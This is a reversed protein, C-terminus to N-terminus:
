KYVRIQASSRGLKFLQEELKVVKFVKLLRIIKTLKYLRALRTLRILKWHSSDEIVIYEILDFPIVCALDLLFWTRIYHKAISCLGTELKCTFPDEYATIFNILIDIAFLIDVAYNTIRKADFGPGIPANNSNFSVDFTVYIGIYLMLFVMILNWVLSFRNGPLLVCKCRGKFETETKETELALNNISGYSLLRHHIRNTCM